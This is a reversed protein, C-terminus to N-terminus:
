IPIPKLPTKFRAMKAYKKKKRKGQQFGVAGYIEHQKQDDSWNYLFTILFSYFFFSRRVQFPSFFSDSKSIETPESQIVIYSQECHFHNLICIKKQFIISLLQVSGFRVSHFFVPLLTECLIKIHRFIDLYFSYCKEHNEKSVVIKCRVTCWFSRFGNPILPAFSFFFCFQFVFIISTITPLKM